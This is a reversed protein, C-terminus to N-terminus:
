KKGRLAILAGLSSARRIETVIAELEDALDDIALAETSGDGDLTTSLVARWGGGGEWRQM